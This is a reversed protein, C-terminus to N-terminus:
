TQAIRELSNEFRLAVKTGASSGSVELDGRVAKAYHQLLRFGLAGGEPWFGEPLGLGQDEIALLLSHNERRVSITVSKDREPPYAHQEANLIAEATLLGISTAQSLDVKVPDGSVAIHMRHESGLRAAIEKLLGVLEVAEVRDMQAHFYQQMEGLVQLHATLRKIDAKGEASYRGFLSVFSLVVQMNNRVRHQVERLLMEREAVAQQLQQQTLKQDTVDVGSGFYGLFKGAASFYPRGTDLIWRYIGDHRRLRYTTSFERRHRFAKEYVALCQERDDPHVGEAWGKGQAQEMTRGTFSLWPRNFWDCLKDAGARWIMVPANDALLLFDQEPNSTEPFGTKTM